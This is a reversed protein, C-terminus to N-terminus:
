VAKAVGLANWCTENLEEDFDPFPGLAHLRFGATDLFLELERPFFYRVSHCETTQNVLQGTELRWMRYQVRCLHRRIDLEGSAVRLIEGNPISVVKLRQSPREVLVAPGYWIDFILIGATRLHRRAAKLAQLVDENELQYGLVAFMMLGADFVRNLDLHRLDGLHFSADGSKNLADLKHKAGALMHESADVGTVRYGRQALPISHSGTGCGLDVVRHVPGQGYERFLREILDCEAEYDKDRYLEDYADAYGTDFLKSM